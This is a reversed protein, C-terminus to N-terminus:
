FCDLVSDITQSFRREQYQQGVDAATPDHHPFNLCQPMKQSTPDLLINRPISFESNNSVVPVVISKTPQLQVITQNEQLEQHEHFNM